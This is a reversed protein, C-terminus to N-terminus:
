YDIECGCKPCVKVGYELHEGCNPCEVIFSLNKVFETLYEKDSQTFRKISDLESMDLDRCEVISKYGLQYLYHGYFTKMYSSLEIGCWDFPNAQSQFGGPFKESLETEAMVRIVWGSLKDTLCLAAGGKGVVKGIRDDPVVVLVKKNNLTKLTDFYSPCEFDFYMNIFNSEGILNKIQVPTSPSYNVVEVKEGGSLYSELKAIKNGGKGVVLACPNDSNPSEVIAKTKKGAIRAVKVVKIEQKLDVTLSYILEEVLLSSTRTATFVIKGNKRELSSIIMPYEKGVEFSEGPIADNPAVGVRIESGELPFTFVYEGLPSMEKFTAFILSHDTIGRLLLTDTLVRRKAIEEEAIEAERIAKAVIHDVMESHIEEEVYDGVKYDGLVRADFLSIQDAGLPNKPVVRKTRVVRLSGDEKFELKVNLGLESSIKSQILNRLSSKM